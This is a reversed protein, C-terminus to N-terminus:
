LLQLYKDKFHRPIGDKFHRHIGDTFVSQPGGLCRKDFGFVGNKERIRQINKYNNTKLAIKKDSLILVGTRNEIARLKALAILDSSTLSSPSNGHYLIFHYNVDDNNPMRTLIEARDQIKELDLILLGIAEGGKKLKIWGDNDPSLEKGDRSIVQLKNNIKIVKLDAEKNKDFAITIDSYEKKSYEQDEDDFETKDPPIKLLCFGPARPGEFHEKNDYYFPIKRGNDYAFCSSYGSYNQNYGMTCLFTGKIEISRGKIINKWKQFRVNGGTLDVLIEAGRIVLTHAILPFFM